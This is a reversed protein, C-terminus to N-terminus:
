APLALVFHVVQRDDFRMELKGGSRISLTRAIHLGLGSHENGKSSMGPEWVLEGLAFGAKVPNSVDFEWWDGNRDIRIGVWRQSDECSEVADLANAVLNSLIRVTNVVRPDIKIQEYPSEIHIELRIDRSEAELLKANLLASMFPSGIKLTENMVAVEHDLDLLYPLLDSPQESQALVNMVQVHHLFDHRQAKVSTILQLVQENLSDQVNQIVFSEVMNLAKILIVVSSIFFFAFSGIVLVPYVQGARLENGAAFEVVCGFVLSFQVIILLALVIFDPQDVLEDLKRLNKGIWGRRIYLCAFPLLLDVPWLLPAATIIDLGTLGPYSGQILILVIFDLLNVIGVAFVFVASIVVARNWTSALLARVMIVVFLSYILYRPILLHRPVAYYLTLISFFAYLLGFLLGRWARATPQQNLLLRTGLLAGLGEPLSLYLAQFIIASFSSENM